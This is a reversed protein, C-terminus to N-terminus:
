ASAGNRSSDSQRLWHAPVGAVVSDAEVDKTVVSGAGIVSNSHCHVNGIVIAGACIIVNDDIVPPEISFGITCQQFIRCNEGIKKAAVITSFGHQFSLGGGINEPPTNIYLSDLPKFLIRFLLYRIPNRHLRNLLVNRISKEELLIKGFKFFSYGSSFDYRCYAEIDKFAKEEFKSGKLLLFAIFIRFYNCYVLITKAKGM